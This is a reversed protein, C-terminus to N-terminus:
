RPRVRALLVYGDTTRGTITELLRHDVEDRLDLQPVHYSWRMTARPQHAVIAWDTSVHALDRIIRTATM